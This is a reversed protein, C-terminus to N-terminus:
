HRTQQLRPSMCCMGTLNTQIVKIWHQVKEDPNTPLYPDAIGANNILVQLGGHSSVQAAIQKTDEVSGIDATAFHYDDHQLAPDEQPAVDVGFVRYGAQLYAKEVPM